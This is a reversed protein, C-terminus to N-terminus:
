KERELLRIEFSLIYDQGCKKCQIRYHTLSKIYDNSKTKIDLPIVFWDKRNGCLKCPFDLKTYIM